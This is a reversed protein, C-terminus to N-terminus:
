LASRARNWLQLMADALEQQLQAWFKESADPNAAISEKKDVVLENMGEIAKALEEPTGTM